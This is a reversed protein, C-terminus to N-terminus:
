ALRTVFAVRHDGGHKVQLDGLVADVTAQATAGLVKVVVSGVGRGPLLADGPHRAVLDDGDGALEGFVGVLRMALGHHDDARGHVVPVVGVHVVAADDVQQHHAAADALAAAAPRMVHALLFQTRLGAPHRQGKGGVPYARRALLVAGAKEIGVGVLPAVLLEAHFLDDRGREAFGVLGGEAAAHDVEVHAGLAHAPQGAGRLELRIRPLHHFVSLGGAHIGLVIHDLREFVARQLHAAFIRICRLVPRAVQKHPAGVQQSGAALTVLIEALVQQAGFVAHLALVQPKAVGLRGFHLPVLVRRLALQVQQDREVEAHAGGAQIGVDHQRGRAPVLLVVEVGAVHVGEDVRQTRRHVRHPLRAAVPLDVFSEGLGEALDAHAVQTHFFLHHERGDHVVGGAFHRLGELDLFPLLAVAIQDGALGRRLDGHDLAVVGVGELAERGQTRQEVLQAVAALADAPLGAGLNLLEALEVAPRQVLAHRLAHRLDDGVDVGALHDKLQCGLGVAVHRHLGPFRQALLGPAVVGVEREVAFVLLDAEAVDLRLRALDDARGGPATDLALRHAVVGAVGVHVFVDRPAGEGAALLEVLVVGPHDSETFAKAAVARRHVQFGGVADVVDLGVAM